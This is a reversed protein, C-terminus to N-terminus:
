YDWRKAREKDAFYKSLKVFTIWGIYLPIVTEFCSYLIIGVTKLFNM